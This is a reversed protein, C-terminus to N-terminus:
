LTQEGVYLFGLFILSPHFFPSIPARFHVININPPIVNSASVAGKMPAVCVECLQKKRLPENPNM